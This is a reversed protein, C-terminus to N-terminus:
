KFLRSLDKVSKISEVSQNMMVEVDRTKFNIKKLVEQTTYYLGGALTSVLIATTTEPQALVKPTNYTLYGTLDKDFVYIKDVQLSDNATDKPKLNFVYAKENTFTQDEYVTFLRYPHDCNRPVFATVAIRRKVKGPKSWQTSGYNSTDTAWSTMALTKNQMQNNRRRQKNIFDSKLRAIHLNFSNARKDLRKQYNLYKRKFSHTAYKKIRKTNLDYINANLSVFGSSTKLVFTCYDNGPEYEIRVDSYIKNKFYDDKFAKYKSYNELYFLHDEFVKLEPFWNLMKENNLTFIVHKITDGEPPSCRTVRFMNRRSKNTYSEFGAYKISGRKNTFGWDYNVKSTNGYNNFLNFYNPDSYRSEFTTADFDFVVGSTNLQTNTQNNETIIQEEKVVPIPNFSGGNLEWQNTKENFDYLAYEEGDDISVFDVDIAKGPKLQLEEKGSFAYMQFMGASTLTGSDYTMPIGSAFISLPDMFEKYTLTVNEKVENGDKDIFANAPISITTGNPRTISTNVSPQVTYISKPLKLSKIPPNIGPNFHEYNASTDEMITSVPASTVFPINDPIIDEPNIIRTCGMRTMITIKEEMTLFDTNSYYNVAIEKNGAIQFSNAWDDDLQLFSPHNGYLKYRNYELLSLKSLTNIENLWQPVEKINDISVTISKIYNLRSLNSPTEIPQILGTDILEIAKLNPLLLSLDLHFPTKNNIWSFHQLYHISDFLSVLQNQNLHTSNFVKLTKLDHLQSLESPLHTRAGVSIYVSEIKPHLAVEKLLKKLRITDYNPYIIVGTLFPFSNWKKFLKKEQKSLADFSIFEVNTRDNLAESVSMENQSRAPNLFFLFFLVTIVLHSSYNM